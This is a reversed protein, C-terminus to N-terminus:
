PNCYINRIDSTKTAQKEVTRPEPQSRTVLPPVQLVGAPLSPEGLRGRVNRRFTGVLTTNTLPKALAEFPMWPVAPRM